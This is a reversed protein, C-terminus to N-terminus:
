NSTKMELHLKGSLGEHNGKDGTYYVREWGAEKFSKVVENSVESPISGQGYLTIQWAYGGDSHRIFLGKCNNVEDNVFQILREVQRSLIGETEGPLIPKVTEVTNPASPPFKVDKNLDKVRDEWSPLPKNDKQPPNDKVFDDYHNWFDVFGRASMTVSDAYNKEHMPFKRGGNRVQFTTTVEKFDTPPKYGLFICNVVEGAEKHEETAGELMTFLVGRSDFYSRVSELDEDTAEKLSPVMLYNFVTDPYTATTREAYSVIWKQLVSLSGRVDEELHKNITTFHGMSVIESIQEIIEGVKPTYSVGYLKQFVEGYLPNHVYNM